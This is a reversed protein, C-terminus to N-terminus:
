RISLDFNIREIVYNQRILCKFQGIWYVLFFFLFGLIVGLNSGQVSLFNHLNWLVIAMNLTIDVIVVKNGKVAVPFFESWM